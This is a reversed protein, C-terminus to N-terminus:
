IDEFLMEQNNGHTQARRMAVQEAQMQLIGHQWEETPLVVMEPRHWGHGCDYLAICVM